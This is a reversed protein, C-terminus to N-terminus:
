RSKLQEVLKQNAFSKAQLRPSKRNSDAGSGKLNRHRLARAGIRRWQGSGIKRFVIAIAWSRWAKGNPNVIGAKPDGM